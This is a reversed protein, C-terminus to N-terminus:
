KVIKPTERQIFCVPLEYVLAGKSLKRVVSIRVNGSSVCISTQLWMGTAIKINPRVMAPDRYPTWLKFRLGLPGFSLRLWCDGLNEIPKM